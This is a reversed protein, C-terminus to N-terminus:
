DSGSEAVIQKFDQVEKKWKQLFIEDTVCKLDGCFDEEKMCIEIEEEDEGLYFPKEKWPKNWPRWPKDKWWHIWGYDLAKEILPKDREIHSTRYQISNEDNWSINNEEFKKFLWMWVQGKEYKKPDAITSKMADILKKSQRSYNILMDITANKPDFNDFEEQTMHIDIIGSVNWVCADKKKADKKKEMSLFTQITECKQDYEIWKEDGCLEKVLSYEINADDCLEELTEMESTPDDMADFRGTFINENHWNKLERLANLQKTSLVMQKKSSGAIESGANESGELKRKKMNQKNSM